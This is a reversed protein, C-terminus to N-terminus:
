GHKVDYFYLKFGPMQKRPNCEVEKIRSGWGFGSGRVRQGAMHRVGNLGCKDKLPSQNNVLHKLQKILNCGPLRSPQLTIWIHQMKPPLLPQNAAAPPSPPPPPPFPPLRPPRQCSFQLRDGMGTYHSHSLAHSIVEEKQFIYVCDLFVNLFM